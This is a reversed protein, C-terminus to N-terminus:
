RPAMTFGTATREAAIMFGGTRGPRWIEIRDAGIPDDFGIHLLQGTDLGDLSLDVRLITRTDDDERMLISVASHM